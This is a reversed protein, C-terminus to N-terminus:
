NGVGVYALELAHLSNKCVELNQLEPNDFCEKNKDRAEKINALFWGVSEKGKKDSESKATEAKATAAFFLVVVVLGILGKKNM